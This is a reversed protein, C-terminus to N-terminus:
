LAALLFRPKGAKKMQSLRAIQTSGSLSTDLVYACHKSNDLPSFFKIDEASFSGWIGVLLTVEDKPLAERLARVRKADEYLKNRDRKSCLEDQHLVHFEFWANNNPASIKLDAKSASRKECHEVQGTKAQYKLFDDKQYPEAFLLDETAASQRLSLSLNLALWSRVFPKAQYMAIIKNAQSFDHQSALHSLLSYQIM